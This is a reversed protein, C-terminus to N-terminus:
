RRSREADRVGREIFPRLVRDAEQETAFSIGPAYTLNVQTMGGSIGGVAPVALSATQMTLSPMGIKGIDRLADAIGWLGIEFPTPSGPTLWSPLKISNIADTVRKILGIVWNFAKGIARIAPEFTSRFFGAVEIAVPLLKDRIFEWVKTIAPLLVNLWLGALATLVLGLVAGLFNSLSQMLPLVHDQIFAWVRQIAPLLIQEWVTRLVGIAIPLTVGLWERFREFIPQIFAWIAAVKDRIGGWNNDWAAKLLIVIAIIVAIALGLPGILLGVVATIIPILAGIASVLFGLVILVPGAAAAVIGFIVALHQQEPTLAKFWAVLQEIWGVLQQFIPMLAEGLELKLESVSQKMQEWPSISERIRDIMGAAMGEADAFGDAVEVLEDYTLGLALAFEPAAQDGLVKSLFAFGQGEENAIQFGQQLYDLLQIPGGALAQQLGDVSLGVGVLAKKAQPGVSQVNSMAANIASWTLDVDAGGRVMAGMLVNLDQFSFGASKAAGASNVIANAWSDTETTLNAAVNALIDQVDALEMNDDKFVTLALSGLNVADQLNNLNGILALDIVGALNETAEEASIEGGVFAGLADATQEFSFSTGKAAEIAAERFGDMQEESAEVFAGARQIAEDFRGFEQVASIGLLALPATVGISLKTGLGTMFDGASKLGKSLNGSFTSAKQESQSLGRDFESTDIGLRALLELNTAM